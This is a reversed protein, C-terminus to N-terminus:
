RGCFFVIFVVLCGALGVIVTTWLFGNFSDLKRDCDLFIIRTGDKDVAKLYRFSGIFGRKRSSELATQIYEKASENDVSVLLIRM